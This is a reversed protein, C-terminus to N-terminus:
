RVKKYIKYGIAMMIIGVGILLYILNDGTKILSGLNKSNNNNAKNVNNENIGSENKGNNEKTNTIIYTNTKENYKQSSVYGSPVIEKVLYKIDKGNQDIRDLNKFSFKWQNGENLEVENIKKDNAYLHVEVKSLKGGVWVKEVDLKDKGALQEENSKPFVWTESKETKITVISPIAFNIKEWKKDKKEIGILYYSGKDINNISAKGYEDTDPAVILDKASYKKLITDLDLKELELMKEKKESDFFDTNDSIKVLGFKKGSVDKETNVYEISLSSQNEMAKAVPIKTAVFTLAVVLTTMIALICKNKKM